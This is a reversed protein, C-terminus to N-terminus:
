SSVPTWQGLLCPKVVLLLPVCLRLYMADDTNTWASHSDYLLHHVAQLKQMHLTQEQPTAHTPRKLWKLTRWFDFLFYKTKQHQKEFYREERCAHM